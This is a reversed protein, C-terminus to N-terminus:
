ARCLPCKSNGQTKTADYKDWEKDLKDCEIHYKFSLNEYKVFEDSNMWDPRHNISSNRNIIMEEYTKEKSNFFDYRVEFKYYENQKEEYDGDEESFPWDPCKNEMEHDYKPKQETSIGFYITKCCDICVKHDCPLQVTYKEEYCVPCEIIEKDNYKVSLTFEHCNSCIWLNNHNSIFCSPNPYKSECFYCVELEFNSM